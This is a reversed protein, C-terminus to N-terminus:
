GRRFTASKAFRDAARQRQAPAFDRLHESEPDLFLAMGLARERDDPHTAHRAEFAFAWSNPWARQQRRALDVLLDRYRQEGTLAHLRECTELLQYGPPVLAAPGSGPPPMALFADWLRDLTREVEGAAGSVYAAALLDHFAAERGAPAPRLLAAAEPTRGAQTLSLVIWPLAAADASRSEQLPLLHQLAEDHRARKFAAYGSAHAALVPDKGAAFEKMAELAWDTASRDGMLMHFLFRGRLRTETTQDGSLSKWRRAFAIVEDPRTAELRHGAVAAEWPGAHEFRKSAEYFARWGEEPRGLLFSVVAAQTLGREDQHQEHLAVAAERVASWDGDLQAILARARLQPAGGSVEAGPQAAILLLTRALEPEGAAVLLEGGGAAPLLNVSRTGSSLSPFALMTRQALVPDRGQLWTRALARYHAWEGPDDEVRESLLQAIAPLDRRARARALLFDDRAPSGRFRAVAQHALLAGRAADGQREAWEIAARLVDFDFQAFRELRPAELQVTAADGTGGGGGQLVRWARPPEDLAVAPLADPMRTRLYRDIETEGDEWGSVDRGLRRAREASLSDVAAPNADQALAVALVAQVGSHGSFGPGLTRVHEITADGASRAQLLVAARNAAHLADFADWPALRDYAQQARWEQAHARWAPAYRREIDAAASGVGTARALLRSASGAIGALAPAAADSQMQDLQAAVIPEWQLPLDASFPVYLVAALGPYSDLVQKRRVPAGATRGFRGRLAEVELRLTLRAAADELASEASAALALNGDALAHLAQAEASQMGELLVLAHPRRYLHLAARARLTRAQADERPMSALAVLSREWLHEGAVDSPHQMAALLQLARANSVPDDSGAALGALTLEAASGPERVPEPAAAELDLELGEAAEAAVLSFAAEPPLEDSFLIPGWQTEQASAWPTKADARRAVRLALTFAPRQPDMRVESRVLVRAGTADALALVRRADHNRARSGLARAVLTPDAVCSAGRRALEAALYRAILSRAPRDLSDAPVDPAVVLVECNSGHLVQAFLRQERAVWGSGRPADPALALAIRTPADPFTAVVYGIGAAALLALAVHRLVPRVADGVSSGGRRAALATELVTLVTVLALAPPLALLLLLLSTALHPWWIATGAAFEGFPSTWQTALWIGAGGSAGLRLVPATHLNVFDTLRESYRWAILGLLAAGAANLLARLWLHGHFDTLLLCALGAALAAYGLATLLSGWPFRFRFAM